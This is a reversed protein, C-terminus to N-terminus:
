AELTRVSDEASSVERALEQLRAGADALQTKRQLLGPAAADGSGATGGYLAGSTHLGTGEPTWLWADQDKLADALVFATELSDVLAHNGLAWEMLGSWESPGRVFDALWGKFGPRGSLNARARRFGAFGPLGFVAEGKRGERLSSLLAVGREKDTVLVVQLSKGLAREVAAQHEAPVELSEGLLSKLRDRASQMLYKVGAEVGEGAAELDALVKRRSELAAQERRLDEAKARAADLGSAADQSEAAAKAAAASEDKARAEAEDAERLANERLRSAEVLRGARADREGTWEEEGSELHRLAGEAEGLRQKLGSLEELASMREEGLEDARARAEQLKSAAADAAERAAASRDAAGALYAEAEGAERVAEARQNAMEALRRNAEDAEARLRRLSEDLHGARDRARDGEGELRIAEAQTAAAKRSLDAVQREEDSLALRAEALEAEGAAIRADLEAARNEERAREIQITESEATIRTWSDHQYSLELARWADRLERWKEAKKAQREFMSVNQQVHKLGDEVRELDAATRELQRLTEKRQQKYKSIGAAEEFMTRREDAKESLISDIMKAEILSYSAAGMGTDYFLNHIDKLRCPQNNILYESEGSRYARRTIMVQTYDSPLLGSDNHILLSVEALNQAARDATGSFIVDEMKSSRLARARQEGLVWRIADIINSKGCGNPGVVSTIGEGPFNVEVRNAFSKFGSIRLKSLYM